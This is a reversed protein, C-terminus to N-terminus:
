YTFFEDAEPRMLKADSPAVALSDVLTTVKALATTISRIVLMGAVAGLLSAGLLVAVVMSSDVPVARGLVVGVSVLLILWFVLLATLRAGVKSNNLNM